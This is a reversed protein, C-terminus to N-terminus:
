FSRAIVTKNTIKNVASVFPPGQLEGTDSDIELGGVFIASGQDDQGSAIVLGQGLELISDRIKALNRSPPIKTLAVGSFIASWTHGIATIVSPEVSTQPNTLTNNLATVLATVIIQSASNVDPFSNIRDRLFNFMYLYASLKDNSFVLEANVTFLSKAFDLMPKENTTELVWAISQMFALISEKVLIEDDVIWDETYGENVLEDWTDSITSIINDRVTNAATTQVSFSVNSAVGPNLINRTGSSVLTYDGFQTSCSSLIIQGGNLAFFHKHAWISVANIANILAGNKACYGIGNHSVPTAGWAMINPYISSQSCVAGDALVVGAGRGVLPNGNDRDLPPAVTTWYPTTRVAIKHVYPARRINAGPKFSVAFGETPNELDDLRWDEFIPGEIFCGSGMRFVNREEFGEEPRIVVARHICRIVTNDPMDLHGKTEYIGPGIEILTIQPTREEALELAKEITRFARDWSKGDLSDDGSESVYYVNPADGVELVSNLFNEVTIKRTKLYDNPESLDVVVMLTNIANNAPIVEIEPLDSIKITM